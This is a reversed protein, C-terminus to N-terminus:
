DGNLLAEVDKKFHPCNFRVREGWGPIFECDKKKGCENCTPMDRMRRYFILCDELFRLAMFLNDQKETADNGTLRELAGAPLPESSKAKFTKENESANRATQEKVSDLGHVTPAATIEGVIYSTHYYGPPLCMFHAALTEADILRM